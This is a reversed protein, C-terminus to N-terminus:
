APKKTMFTRFIFTAASQVGQIGLVIAVQQSTSLDLGFVAGLSAAFALGQTWNVKSLAAPNVKALVPEMTLNGKIIMLVCITFISGFLILVYAVFPDM